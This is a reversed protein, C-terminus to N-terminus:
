PCPTTDLSCLVSEFEIVTASTISGTAPARGSQGAATLHVSGTPVVSRLLDRTKVQQDYEHYEIRATAPDAALDYTAGPAYSADAAFDVILPKIWDVTGGSGPYLYLRYVDRTGDNATTGWGSEFLMQGVLGVDLTVTATGLDSPSAPAAPAQYVPVDFSGQLTGRPLCGGTDGAGLLCTEGAQCDPNAGTGPDNAAPDCRMWCSGTAPTPRLRLCARPCACDFDITCLSGTVHGSLPDCTPGVDPPLIVDDPPGDSPAPVDPIFHDPEIPHDSQADHGADVQDHGGGGCGGVTLAVLILLRLGGRV